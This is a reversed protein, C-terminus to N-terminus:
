QSIAELGRLCLILDLDRPMFILTWVAQGSQTGGAEELGRSEAQVPWISECSHAVGPWCPGSSGHGEFSRMSAVAGSIIRWLSKLGWPSVSVWRSSQIRLRSLHHGRDGSLSEAM